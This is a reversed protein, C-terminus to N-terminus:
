SSLLCRISYGYIRNNRYSPNVDSTNLFLIYMYDNNSDRTSSWFNGYSDQDYASGNYFYGSLPLRLATRYNAYATADSTSGTSGYIANALASYEGTTKGAPMRWGKPCISSTANGSSTGESTGNGYCYSGASAACYNYYGGVKWEGALVTSAMPDSGQLIVDKDTLNVLPASYSYGSTWNAVKATAYKDSTTGPTTGKLAALAGPDTSTNINTNDATLANLITDNTLDLALNDLMWCKDDALKAVNYTEDDRADILTGTQGPTVATCISSEADQMKYYGNYKTKGADAFADNFTVIRTNDQWVAYVNGTFTSNPDGITYLSGPYLTAGSCATVDSSNNATCWGKFVYNANTNTPRSTTIAFTGDTTTGTSASPLTGTTTTGSNDLYNLTYDITIIKPVNIFNIINTYAGAVQSSSAKAGIKFNLTTASSTTTDALKIDGSHSNDNYLPMIGYGSNTSGTSGYVWNSTTTCDNATNCYSYGWNSDSFNSLSSVASSLVTFKNTTDTGNLRLETTNYTSNGVNTYLAYGGMANSSATVTITNSDASNGPRLDNISLDGSVSLSVVPNFTFSVDTNNQYTIASASEVGTVLLLGGFLVMGGLKCKTM